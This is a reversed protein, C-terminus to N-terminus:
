AVAGTAYFPSPIEPYVRYVRRYVEDAREQVEAEDYKDLPLGTQDSWLFDQIALRVADRTAEKDRWHDVRLKEAKLTALLEVAVSKIKRIQEPTLEPKHLLDFIALSEEDLGERVARREEDDLEQVLKLFAEFSKEITLRDKERNYEAVITEYHSQSDTRLPNQLLGNFSGSSTRGGATSTGGCGSSAFVSSTTGPWTM